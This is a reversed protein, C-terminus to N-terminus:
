QQDHSQSRNLVKVVVIDRKPASIGSSYRMLEQFRPAVKTKFDALKGQELFVVSGDPVGDETVLSFPIRLYFSAGYTANGYSFLRPRPEAQLEHQLVSTSVWRKPSLHWAVVDYGFFSGVFIASIIVLALRELPQAVIEKVTSWLVTSLLGCLVGASLLKSLTMSELFARTDLRMGAVPVTFFVAVVVALVVLASLLGQSLRNFLQPHSQEVRRLGGELVIALFPYAPLLYVSRKGEPICFFLIIGLSVIWSFQHLPSQGQWWSSLNAVCPREPWWARLRRPSVLPLVCLSWPLVGVVLMGLLYLVSHKHPEDAMSSTFREFNEYRIKELFEEGREYYGLLYWVSTIAVVPICIAAARVAIGPLMRIRFGCRMWCFLSFLGLPLVIGVPGKTLAACATLAIALWPVRRYEREWWCYLSLLAGAMSTALLTDVRCTSASRFWESSALLVLSAGTAASLPLRRVLFCFFAGSFLVVALASPLRSTLETVEGGPLSALSILWHSFPPKSPVDGDYAPPSIWNGTLLMAQAVLAERPEGRTHFPRALWPM